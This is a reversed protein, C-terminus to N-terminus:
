RISFLSQSSCGHSCSAHLPDGPAPVSRPQSPPLASSCIRLQGENGLSEWSDQHGDTHDASGVGDGPVSDGKAGPIRGPVEKLEWKGPALSTDQIASGLLHEKDM